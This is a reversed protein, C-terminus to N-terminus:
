NIMQREELLRIRNLLDTNIAQLQAILHCHKVIEENADNLVTILDIPQSVEKPKYM